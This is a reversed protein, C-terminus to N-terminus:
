QHVVEADSAQADLDRERREIKLRDPVVHERPERGGRAGTVRELLQHREQTAPRLPIGEEHDVCQIVQNRPVDQDFVLTSPHRLTEIRRRTLYWRIDAAGDLVLDFPEAIVLM